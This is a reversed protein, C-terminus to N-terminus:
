EIIHQEPDQKCLPAATHATYETHHMAAYKAQACQCVLQNYEYHLNTAYLLLTAQM